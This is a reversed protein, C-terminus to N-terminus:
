SAGVRAPIGVRRVLPAVQSREDPQSPALTAPLEDVIEHVITPRRDDGARRARLPDRGGDPERALVVELDRDPGAAMARRSSPM